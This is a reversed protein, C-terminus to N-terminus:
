HIWIILQAYHSKCTCLEKLTQDLIVEPLMETTSAPSIIIAGLLPYFVYWLSFWLELFIFCIAIASSGYMLFYVENHHSTEGLWFICCTINFGNQTGWRSHIVHMDHVYGCLLFPSIFGEMVWKFCENEHVVTLFNCLSLSNSATRRCPPDSLKQELTM